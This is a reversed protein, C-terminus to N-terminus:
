GTSPRSAGGPRQVAVGVAEDNVRHVAVLCRPELEAADVRQEAADVVGSDIGAVAVDVDDVALVDGAAVLDLDAAELVIAGAPEADAGGM